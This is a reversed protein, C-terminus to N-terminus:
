FSERGTAERDEVKNTQHRLERSQEYISKRARNIGGLPRHEDLGRWPTFSLNECFEMQQKSDFKQPYITITALKIPRSNWAITPNEVPTKQPDTQEQIYFDFRVPIKQRTLREVMARRLSNTPDKTARLAPWGNGEDPVVKYKVASGGFNYPTQSWYTAQLPSTKLQKKFGALAPHSTFAINIIAKPDGKAAQMKAFFELLHEVNKAFFVPNDALVFDQTVTEQQDSEGPVFVKIAMGHADPAQDNTEKGNSFRIVCNYDNPQRFIGVKLRNPLDNAVRFRAWVAGHNKPHQGRHAKGDDTARQQAALAGALRKIFVSEGPPPDELSVPKKIQPSGLSKLYEILAWREGPKLERGVVGYVAWGENEAVRDRQFQTLSAREQETLDRFEHGTNLNGPLTTNMRFHQPNPDTAFGVHKPDFEM